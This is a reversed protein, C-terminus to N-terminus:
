DAGLRRLARGLGVAPRRPDAAGASVEQGAHLGASLDLIGDAEFGGGVKWTMTEIKGLSRGAVEANFDTLRRPPKDASDLYYLETPHDPESGTFAVAGGRGVVADM